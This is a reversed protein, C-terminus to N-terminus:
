KLDKVYKEIRVARYIRDNLAKVQRAIANDLNDFTGFNYTKGRLDYGTVNYYIM